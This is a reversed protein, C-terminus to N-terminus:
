YNLIIILIVLITILIAIIKIQKSNKVNRATTELQKMTQRLRTQHRDVNEDIGDLIEVQEHLEGGIQISLERQRQISKSLNDLAQDQQNMIRSHYSLLQQNDFQSGDISNPEDRYPFFLSSNTRQPSDSFRVTKSTIPTNPSGRISTKLSKTSLGILSREPTEMVHGSSVADNIHLSNSMVKTPTIDRFKTIFDDYQAQLNKQIEQITQSADKDGLNELRSQEINIKEIGERLSELLSSLYSDQSASKTNSHIAVQRELLSLKIHDALLFYQNFNAM